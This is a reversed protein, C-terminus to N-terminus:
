AAPPRTAKLAKGLLRRDGQGLEFLPLGAFGNQELVISYADAGLRTHESKLFNKWFDDTVFPEKPPVSEKAPAPTKVPEKEPIENSDDEPDDGTAVLFTKSLLYKVGGTMAKYPAKDSTDIGQAITSAQFMEDSDADMFTAVLKIVVSYQTTGSKTTGIDFRLMEVEPLFVVREKALLPRILDLFDSERAYTYNQQINRGRKQVYNTEAMVRALKGALSRVTTTPDPRPPQSDPVLLAPLPETLWGSKEPAPGSQESDGAQPKPTKTM